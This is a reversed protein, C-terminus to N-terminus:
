VVENQGIWKVDSRILRTENVKRGKGEKGKGGKGEVVCWKMGFWDLEVM